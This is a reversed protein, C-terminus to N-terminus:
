ADSSVLQNEKEDDDDDEEEESEEKPPPPAKKSSAAPKVKSSKSAKDDDNKAAKPAKPKPEKGRNPNEPSDRWMAAIGAMADKHSKGENAAKWIPMNEKVFLNYASPPRKEKPNGDKDTKADKKTKTSADKTATKTVKASTEKAM